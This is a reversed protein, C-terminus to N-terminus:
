RRVRIVRWRLFWERGHLYLFFLTTMAFIYVFPRLPISYRPYPAGAIHVAIYYWILVSLLRAAFLSHDPLALYRRPLWIWVSGLLGLLMLLVHTEKMLLRSLRFHPLYSYPSSLVPYLFIDGMGEINNWKFLYIPKEFLYWKLYRAPHALFNEKIHALVSTISRTIEPTQPDFRYPIALTQPDDNYMLGPYSGHHLTGIMLTDDTATGLTVINRVIWPGFVIFVGAILLASTRIAERREKCLFVFVVLPAIFYQLTPRTLLAAGLAFGAWSWAIRGKEAMLMLWVALVLLFTFLTETLVYVNMIVIHPSIATLSTALLAPTVSLFGRALLFTLVVTATSLLAQIVLLRRLDSYDPRSGLVAYLFLPYGPPRLADSQPAEGPPTMKRSYVGHEHLNWAYAVYELADARIPHDVVTHLVNQVRLDLSVLIIALLALTPWTPVRKSKAWRILLRLTDPM